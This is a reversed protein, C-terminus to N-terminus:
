VSIAPKRNQTIIIDVGAKKVKEVEKTATVGLDVTIILNPKSKEIVEDIMDFSLGYGDDFRDPIYVDVLVNRSLFYKYLIVCASIGDCDYDGYVVIKQNKEIAEEIRAKAEKMGNLLFPDNLLDKTPDLFENIAEQTEYGRNRLLNLIRKDLENAKM